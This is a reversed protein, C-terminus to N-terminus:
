RQAVIIPRRGQLQYSNQGSFTSNAPATGPMAGYAVGTQTQVMAPYQYYLGGIGGFFAAPVVASGSPDGGEVLLNPATAGILLDFIYAGPSLTGSFTNAGFAAVAASTPAMDGSDFVLAGAEGTSTIPYVGLRCIAGSVSSNPLVGLLSPSFPYKWAMAFRLLTGSGWTFNDAGSWLTDNIVFPSGAIANGYLWGSGGSTPLLSADLVGAAGLLPVKGADAAGASSTIGALAQLRGSVIQLLSAM